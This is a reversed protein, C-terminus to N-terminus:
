RIKVNIPTIGLCGRIKENRIKDKHTKGRVRRLMHLEHAYVSAYNGLARHWIAHRM